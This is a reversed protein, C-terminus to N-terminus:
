GKCYVLDFSNITFAELSALNKTQQFFLSSAGRMGLANVYRSDHYIGPNPGKIVVLYGMEPPDPITKFVFQEECVNNQGFTDLRM